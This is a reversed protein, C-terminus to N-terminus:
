TSQPMATYIVNTSYTGAPQTFDLKVGYTVTTTSGGVSPASPGIFDRIFNTVLTPTTTIGIFNTSADTNYGWTNTALAAPSGYANSSAPITGGLTSTLSANSAANLYLKYGTVDTSTVTVVNTATSLQGSNSATAAIAVNTASITISTQGGYPVVADYKGLGYPSASVPVAISLIGIAILILFFTNFINNVKKM